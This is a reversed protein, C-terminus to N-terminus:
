FLETQQHRGQLKEVTNLSLLGMTDAVTQHLKTTADEKIIKSLTSLIKPIYPVLSDEFVEAALSFLKIQEKQQTIKTHVNFDTFSNLLTVMRDNETVETVMFERLEEIGKLVTHNAAFKSM